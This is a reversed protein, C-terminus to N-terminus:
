IGAAVAPVVTAAIMAAHVAEIAQKTATTALNDGKCIENIRRRHAKLVRPNFIRNLVGGAKAVTLLVADRADIAGTGFMANEMREKLLQEPVPNITPYNTETFIIFKEKWTRELIGKDILNQKLLPILGNHRAVATLLVRPKKDFGKAIMLNLARSLYTDSPLSMYTAEFRGSKGEGRPSIHGSFALSAMAAGAALYTPLSGQIRGTVDDLVLLLIEEPLTLDVPGHDRPDHYM